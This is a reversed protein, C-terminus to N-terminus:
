HNSHAILHIFFRISQLHSTVSLRENHGHIRAVDNGTLSMPSFRFVNGQALPWFLRSDTGGNCTAPSIVANPYCDRIASTIVAWGPGEVSSIPSAEAIQNSFNTVIVRPDAVVKNIHRLVATTTDGPLMRSNIVAKASTPLVNDKVGAQLITPTLTTTVIAATAPNKSLESLVLRDFLWSNAIAFRLHIPLFPSISRLMMHTPTTIRRPMPNTQIRGLAEALIFIANEKSPMSSHGSMTEVTMQMSYYGKEALGVYAVQRDLGPLVNSVLAGGEDLVYEFEVQRETLIRVVARNGRLGSIEEDHGFSLYVSRKPQTFGTALLAEVAECIGLVGMKCDLSGRGYVYEKDIKGSFPPFDWASENTVPVVDIHSMLLYPKLSSDSGTWRYLLTYGNVVELHLYKHMLPFSEQLLLRFQVFAESNVPTEADFDETYTVTKLQLALSLHELYRPHRGPDSVLEVAKKEFDKWESEGRSPKLNTDDLESFELFKWYSFCLSLFVVASYFIIM